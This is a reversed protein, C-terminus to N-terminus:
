LKYILIFFVTFYSKCTSNQFLFIHFCRNSNRLSNPFPKNNFAYLVPFNTRIAGSSGCYIFVVPKFHSDQLFVKTSWLFCKEVYKQYFDCKQVRKQIKETQFFFKKTRNKNKATSLLRKRIGKLVTMKLRHDDKITFARPRGYGVKRNLTDKIVFRKGIRKVASLSTKLM